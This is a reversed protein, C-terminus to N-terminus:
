APMAPGEASVVVAVGAAAYGMCDFCDLAGRLASCSTAAPPPRVEFTLAHARSSLSHPQVATSCMLSVTQWCSTQQHVSRLDLCVHM